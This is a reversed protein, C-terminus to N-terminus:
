ESESDKSSSPRKAATWSFAFLGALFLVVIVGWREALEMGEATIFLGFCIIWLVLGLTNVEQKEKPEDSSMKGGCQV